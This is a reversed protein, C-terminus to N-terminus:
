WLLLTRYFNFIEIIITIVIVMLLVVFSLSIITTATSIKNDTNATKDHLVTFNSDQDVM